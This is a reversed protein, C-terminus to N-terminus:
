VKDVAGSIGSVYAIEGSGTLFISISCEMTAVSFNSVNNISNKEIVPNRYVRVGSDWGPLFAM